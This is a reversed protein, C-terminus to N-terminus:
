NFHDFPYDLTFNLEMAEFGNLGISTFMARSIRNRITRVIMMPKIIVLANNAAAASMPKRSISERESTKPNPTTNTPAAAKIKSL